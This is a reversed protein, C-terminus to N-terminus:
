NGAAIQVAIRETVYEAGAQNYHDGSAFYAQVVNRDEILDIVEIGESEFWALADNYFATADRNMPGDFMGVPKFIVVIQRVGLREFAEATAPIFSQDFTRREGEIFREGNDVVLADARQIRNNSVYAILLDTAKARQAEPDFASVGMAYGAREVFLATRDVSIDLLNTNGNMTDFPAKLLDAFIASIREFPEVSDRGSFNVQRDVDENADAGITNTPAGASAMIDHYRDPAEIIFTSEATEKNQRFAPLVGYTPRFGWVVTDPATSRDMGVTAALYWMSSYHGNYYGFDVKQDPFADRLQQLDLGTGFMSNGLVYVEQASAPPALSVRQDSVPNTSAYNLAFVIAFTLMLPTALSRWVFISKM